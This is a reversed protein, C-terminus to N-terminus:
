GFDVKVVKRAEKDELELMQAEKFGFNNAILNDPVSERKNNYAMVADNYAQRAFAIRNETSALEEQLQMMNQNAKLDPYAEALAFFKGMAAGLVGEAGSLARIAAADTPDGEARQAAAVAENRAKIVAELTEREHKLYGKATEVLNPILDYRRQLQVDIQAFGNKVANRLAVLGNYIVVAWIVIVAVLGLVIWGM